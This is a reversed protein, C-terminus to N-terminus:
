VELLAPIEKACIRGLQEILIKGKEASAAGPQGIVGDKAYAKFGLVLLWERLDCRHDLASLNDGKVLHPALHLLISTEIEGAHMDQSLNLECEAAKIAAKWQEGGPGIAIGPGHINNEQAFHSLVYNGGHGSIVFLKDIGQFKLSAWIDEVTAILAKHGIWVTGAYGAHEHSCTIAIPPLRLVPVHRAISEAIGCAVITDTELPLHPGHQEFSGVPLVALRPRSKEIDASTQGALLFHM